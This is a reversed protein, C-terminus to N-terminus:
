RRRYLMHKNLSVSCFIHASLSCYAFFHTLSQEDPISRFISYLWLVLVCTCSTSEFNKTSLLWHFFFFKRVRSRVWSTAIPSKLLLNSLCLYWLVAVNWSSNKSSANNQTPMFAIAPAMNIPLGSIAGRLAFAVVVCKSLTPGRDRLSSTPWTSHRSQHKTRRRPSLVDARSGLTSHVRRSSANIPDGSGPVSPGRKQKAM